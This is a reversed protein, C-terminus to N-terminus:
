EPAEISVPFNQDRSMSEPAQCHFMIGNNRFAWDPGGKVQEGVFRYEVHIKYNSFKDKYFIHGFKNDFEDYEDYSVKLVGDEVRFTNKYNENLEQGAFKIKWDNLDKGNFLSIWQAKVENGTNKRCQYSVLCFTTFVMLLVSSSKM